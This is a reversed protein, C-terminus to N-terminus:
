LLLLRKFVGIIEKFPLQTAGAAVLPLLAAASIPLLATRSFPLTNMKQAAAFVKTPDPIEKAASEDADDAASINRGLTERESARFHRTAQASSELLTQEKLRALPKRFAMLPIAFLALVIVLWATMIYGYTVTDLGAELMQKAIAAGVVVSVALVYTTYANPYQGVFALGGYGDPHNVVLRLDLAAFGRLLMAWVVYRWLWRFLLFGFILNSVIVAWWGAMTLTREEGAVRLAWTAVDADSMNLYTAFSALMALLLCVVEAVRSDRRRLAQNVVRAAPEFAAPALVPAREFQRLHMRLRDEIQREMLVFLGVAILYRSWPALTLLYPHEEFSGFARGEILSLLFPLGWALVVFVVALPGAHFAHERLLGLRQQLEYFPGGRAVLFDGIETPENTM